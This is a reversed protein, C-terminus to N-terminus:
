DGFYIRGAMVTVPVTVGVGAANVCRTTVDLGPPTPNFGSVYCRTATSGYSGVLVTPVLASTGASGPFRTLVLNAGLDQGENHSTPNYGYTTLVTLPLEPEARVWQSGGPATATDMHNLLTAVLSFRSNALTGGGSFCRVEAKIDTGSREWYNVSCTRASTSRATAIIAGETSGWNVGRLLVAYRGVGLRTVRSKLGPNSRHQTAPTHSVLGNASTLALYSTSADANTFRFSNFWVLFGTTESRGNTAPNYCRVRVRTGDSLQTVGYVTCFNPEAEAFLSLHVNAMSAKVNRAKVWYDGVGYRGVTVAGGSSYTWGARLSPTHAPTDAVDVVAQFAGPLNTAASAPAAAVALAGAAVVAGVFLRCSRRPTRQPPSASIAPV